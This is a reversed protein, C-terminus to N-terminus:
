RRLCCWRRLFSGGFCAGSFSWGFGINFGINFGDCILYCFCRSIDRCFGWGFNCSFWGGHDFGRHWGFFHHRHTAIVTRALFFGLRCGGSTKTVFGSGTAVISRGPASAWVSGSRATAGIGRAASIRKFRTARAQTVGSEASLAMGKLLGVVGQAAQGHLGM